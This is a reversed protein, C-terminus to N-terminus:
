VTEDLIAEMKRQVEVNQRFEKLRNTVTTRSINLENAIEQKSYDMARMAVIKKIKDEGVKAPM